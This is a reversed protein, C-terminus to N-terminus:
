PTPRRIPGSAATPQAPSHAHTRAHTTAVFLRALPLVSDSCGVASEIIFPEVPQDDRAGNGEPVRAADDPAHAGACYLTPPECRFAGESAREVGGAGINLYTPRARVCACRRACVWRLQAASWRPRVWGVRRRLAPGCRVNRIVCACAHARVHVCARVCMCARVRGCARVRARVCAGACARARVRVCVCARACACARARM